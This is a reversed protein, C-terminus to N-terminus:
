TPELSMIRPFGNSLFLQIRFISFLGLNATVVGHTPFNYLIWGVCEWQCLRDKIILANIFILRFAM